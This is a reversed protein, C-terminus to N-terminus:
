EANLIERVVEYVLLFSQFDINDFPPRETLIYNAFRSKTLAINISEDSIRCVGNDIIQISNEGCKNKNKCIKEEFIHLGYTLSFENGIYLRRGNEDELKIEEDKYYHEISIHPTAERHSPVPLTFSYVNNGWSRFSVGDGGSVKRIFAPEDRDFIAIIKKNQNLKSLSTCLNFLNSSGMEIDEEFELFEIEGLIDQLNLKNLAQKLHKWDTKGETIILNKPSNEVEEQM